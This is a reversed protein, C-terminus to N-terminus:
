YHIINMKLKGIIKVDSQGGIIKPPYKTNESQLIIAGDTKYMRKLVAEGDIMVAMIEGNEFTDQERILLLDGDEIRANIMSDGKARLLFHNAGKIWSAPVEEYGEIDEFALIGDGCCITGVIPLKELKAGFYPSIDEPMIGYNGAKEETLDSRMINFYDALMQIKDPRPYTSAKMWNSVTTEPINLDKAMDTQNLGIKDLNRKLNKAFIKKMREVENKKM